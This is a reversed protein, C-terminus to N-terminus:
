SQRDGSGLSMTVISFRNMKTEKDWAEGMISMKEGLNM